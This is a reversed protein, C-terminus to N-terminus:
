KSRMASEKIEAMLNGDVPLKMGTVTNFKWLLSVKGWVVEMLWFGCLKAVRVFESLNDISDDVIVLPEIESGPEFLGLLTVLQGDSTATQIIRFHLQQFDLSLVLKEADEALFMGFVPSLSGDRLHSIALKVEVPHCNEGVCLHFESGCEECISQPM